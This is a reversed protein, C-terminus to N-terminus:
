FPCDDVIDQIQKKKDEIRKVLLDYRDKKLQAFSTIKFAKLAADRWGPHTNTIHSSIQAEIEKEQDKSIVEEIIEASETEWFAKTRYDITAAFPDGNRFLEDLDIPLAHFAEKIKPDVPKHPSPNVEYVTKVQQGTRTVKLDYHYPAGWDKDKSLSEIRHRITAQTMEMVQIKSTAYNWVIFAWFHRIPKEPDISREPKSTMRFRIPKKNEWDEWGIIPASLIRFKNEGDELKM